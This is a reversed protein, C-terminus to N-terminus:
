QGAFGRYNEKVKKSISFMSTRISEVESTSPQHLGWPDDVFLKQLKVAEEAQVAAVKNFTVMRAKAKRLLPLVKEFEITKFDAVSAFAKKDDPTPFIMITQREFADEFSLSMEGGPMKRLIVHELSKQKIIDDLAKEMYIGVDRNAKASQTFFHHKEKAQSYFSKAVKPDALDKSKFSQALIQMDTSYNYLEEASMYKDYFGVENLKKDGAAWFHMHYISDEERIIKGAFMAHRSEHKTSPSLYDELLSIAQNPGLEIRGQSPIYVAESKRKVHDNLDITIKKVDFKTKVEKLYNFTANPSAATFDLEITLLGSKEDKVIKSPIGEKIYLDHLKNTFKDNTMKFTNLQQTVYEKHWTLKTKTAQDPNPIKELEKIIKESRSVDNDLDHARSIINKLEAKPTPPPVVTREFHPMVYDPKSWPNLRKLADGIMSEKAVMKEDLMKMETKLYQIQESQKLGKLTQSMTAIDLVLFGQNVAISFNTEEIEKLLDNTQAWANIDTSGKSFLSGKLADYDKQLTHSRDSLYALEGLGYATGALASTTGITSLLLSGGLISSGIASGVGTLMLTGGVILGGYMYLEQKDELDQQKANAINIASCVQGLYKPNKQLVQSISAPASRVLSALQDRVEHLGNAKAAMVKKDISLGALYQGYREVEKKSQVIANEIVKTSPIPKFKVESGGLLIERFGGGNNRADDKHKLVPTVYEQLSNTLLLSGDPSKMTEALHDSAWMSYKVIEDNRKKTKEKYQVEDKASWAQGKDNVHVESFENYGSRSVHNGRSPEPSVKSYASKMESIKKNLFQRTDELSNKKLEGLLKKQYAVGAAIISYKLGSDYRSPKGAGPINMGPMEFLHNFTKTMDLPKANPSYRHHLDIYTSLADEFGQKLTLNRLEKAQDFQSTSFDDKSVENVKKILQEFNAFKEMNALNSEDCDPKQNLFSQSLRNKLELSSSSDKICANLKNKVSFYNALRLSIIKLEKMEPTKLIAKNAPHNIFKQIIKGLELIQKESINPTIMSSIQILKIAKAKQDNINQAFSLPILICFLCIFKLYTSMNKFLLHM